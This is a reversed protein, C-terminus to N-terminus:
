LSTRLGVGVPKRLSKSFGVGSHYAGELDLQPASVNWDMSTDTHITQRHMGNKKTTIAHNEERIPVALGLELMPTWDGVPASTPSPSAHIRELEDRAHLLAM